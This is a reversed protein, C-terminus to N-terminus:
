TYGLMGVSAASRVSVCVCVHVCTYIYTHIYTAFVAAVARVPTNVADPKRVDCGAYSLQLLVSLPSAVLLLTYTNVCQRIILMIKQTLSSNPTFM